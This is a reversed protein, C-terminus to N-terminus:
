PGAIKTTTTTLGNTSWTYYLAGNNIWLRGNNAGIEAAPPATTRTPLNAQYSGTLHLREILKLKQWFITSLYERGVPTFHIHDTNYGLAMIQSWDSLPTFCDVFTWGNTLCMQRDVLLQYWGGSNTDANGSSNGSTQPQCVVVDAAPAYRDFLQKVEPWAGRSDVNRSQTYIILDPRLNTLLTAVSNTSMLLFDKLDVGAASALSLFTSRSNTNVLAPWLYQIRNTATIRVGYKGEPLAVNTVYIGRPGAQDLHLVPVFNLLDSTIEVTLSGNTATQVYWFELLNANIYGGGGPGGWIVAQANTQYFIQSRGWWVDPVYEVQVPTATYFAPFLSHFAGPQLPRNSYKNMVRPLIEVPADGVSNGFAVVRVQNSYTLARTFYPLKDLNVSFDRTDTLLNTLNQANLPPLISGPALQAANLNTLNAANVPNLVAGPAINNATASVAANASHLSYPTATIRQRPALINFGGSGNSRVGIELWREAGTFAGAGFDLVTTFIGDSVSTSINTLPTTVLAGGTDTAFLGFTFDYSGNVVNTGHTLRGQYTFAPNQAWLRGSIGLSLVLAWVLAFRFLGQKSM